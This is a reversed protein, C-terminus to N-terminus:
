LSTERAGRLLDIADGLLEGAVTLGRGDARLDFRHGLCFGHPRAPTLLRVFGGSRRGSLLPVVAGTGRQRLALLAARGRKRAATGSVCELGGQSSFPITDQFGYMM